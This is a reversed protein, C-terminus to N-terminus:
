INPIGFSYEIILIRVLHKKEPKVTGPVRSFGAARKDRASDLHCPM